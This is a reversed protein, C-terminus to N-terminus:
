LRPLIPDLRALRDLHYAEDDSRADPKADKVHRWRDPARNCLFFVLELGTAKGTTLREFLSDEVARVRLGDQHEQAKRVAREFAADSQRWRWITARDAGAQQAAAAMTLPESQYIELFRVKVTERESDNM